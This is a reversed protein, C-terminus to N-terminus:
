DSPTIAATLAVRVPLHASRLLEQQYARGQVAVNFRSGKKVFPASVDRTYRLGFTLQPM